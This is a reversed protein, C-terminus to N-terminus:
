RTTPLSLLQHLNELAHEAASANTSDLAFPAGEDLLLECGLRRVAFKEIAPTLSGSILAIQKPKLSRRIRTFM